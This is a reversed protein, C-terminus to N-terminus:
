SNSTHINPICSFFTHNVKFRNALRLLAFIIVQFQIVRVHASRPHVGVETAKPLRDNPIPYKLPREKTEFILTAESLHRLITEEFVIM